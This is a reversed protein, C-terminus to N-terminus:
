TSHRLLSKNSRLGESDSESPVSVVLDGRNTTRMSNIRLGDKVPNVRKTFEAKCDVPTSKPRLVLAVGSEVAYDREPKQVSPKPQRSMKHDVRGRSAKEGNSNGLSLERALIAKEALEKSIAVSLKGLEEDMVSRLARRTGVDSIEDFAKNINRRGM